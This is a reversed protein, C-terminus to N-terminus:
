SRRAKRGRRPPKGLGLQKRVDGIPITPGKRREEIMRWFDADMMTLVDEIEDGDVGIMIVAPKGHRTIVVRDHQAAEVYTSLRDKAEALAVFKM